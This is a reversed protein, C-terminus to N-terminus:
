YKAFINRQLTAQRKNHKPKPQKVSARKVTLGEKTDIKKLDYRWPEKQWRQKNVAIKGTKKRDESILYKSWIGNGRHYYHTSDSISGFKQVISAVAQAATQTYTVKRNEAAFQKLRRGTFLSM